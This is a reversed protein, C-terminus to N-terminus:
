RGVKGGEWRGVKVGGLEGEWRGVSIVDEGRLGRGVGKIKMTNQILFLNVALPNREGGRGGM